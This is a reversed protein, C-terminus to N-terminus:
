KNKSRKYLSKTLLVTFDSIKHFRIKVNFGEYIKLIKQEFIQNIYDKFKSKIEKNKISLFYVSILSLHEMFLFNVMKNIKELSFDNKINNYLMELSLKYAQNIHEIKEIFKDDFASLTDNRRHYIISYLMLKKFKKCKSFINGMEAIDEYKPIKGFDVDCSKLFDLRIFHGWSFTTTELYYELATPKIKLSKVMNNIIPKGFKLDFQYKFQTSLIDINPNLHKVCREIVKNNVFEDDSDIFFIFEGQAKEILRNRSIGIGVNTESDILKVRPDNKMIQEVLEKTNDTSCDNHFIIELNPYTQNLITLITSSFYQASNHLPILISVLPSYITKKSKM